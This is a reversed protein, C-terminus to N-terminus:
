SATTSAASGTELREAIAVGRARGGDLRKRELRVPERQRLRASRGSRACAPNCRGASRRRNCSSCTPAFAPSSPPEFFQAGLEPLRRGGALVSAGRSVADALQREVTAIQAASTLPGLDVEGRNPGVRLLSAKEVVRRTFEDAVSEVVFIREVSMCVQGSMLVRGLRRRERRARPKADELVIMPDKGGLELLVPV